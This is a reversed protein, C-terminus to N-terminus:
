LVYEAGHDDHVKAAEFIHGPFEELTLSALRNDPRSLTVELSLRSLAISVFGVVACREAQTVGM